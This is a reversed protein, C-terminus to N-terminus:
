GIFVLRDSLGGWKEREIRDDYIVITNDNGHHIFGGYKGLSGKSTIQFKCSAILFMDIYGKDAKNGEVILYNDLLGIEPILNNSVWQTEDSFFYFFANKNQELIYAIANSFYTNPVPNGYAPNFSSLDGRRVHVAVPCVRDKIEKYVKYNDEDFCSSTIKFYRQMMVDLMYHTYPYYSMLWIPPEKEVFDMSKNLNSYKFGAFLISELFSIEDFELYPFAKILDFNRVHNGDLDHGDSKFWSLDFKVKYGKEKFLM